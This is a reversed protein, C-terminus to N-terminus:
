ESQSPACALALEVQELRLGMISDDIKVWKRANEKATLIQLNDQHHLGGKALPVIHDVQYKTDGASLQKALKYFMAILKMDADEPTQAMKRAKRKATQFADAAKDKKRRRYYDPNAEMWRRHRARAAEKHAHYYARHWARM